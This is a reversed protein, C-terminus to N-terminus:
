GSAAAAPPSTPAIRSPSASIPSIQRFSDSSGATPNIPSPPTSIAALRVRVDAAATARPNTIAKIMARFVQAPRIKLRATGPSSPIANRVM